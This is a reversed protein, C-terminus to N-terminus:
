FEFERALLEVVARMVLQLSALFVLDRDVGQFVVQTKRELEAAKSDRVQELELPQERGFQKRLWDREKSWNEDAEM